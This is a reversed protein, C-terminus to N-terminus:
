IAALNRSPPRRSSGVLLDAVRVTVALCHRCPTRAHGPARWRVRLEAVVALPIACLLSPRWGCAAPTHLCPAGKGAAHPNRESMGGAEALKERYEKLWGDMAQARGGRM